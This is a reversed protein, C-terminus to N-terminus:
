ARVLTVTLPRPLFQLLAHDSVMYKINLVSYVGILYRYAHLYAAQLLCNYAVKGQCSKKRVVRQSKTFDRVNGQCSDFERVNGPEGFLHDAQM